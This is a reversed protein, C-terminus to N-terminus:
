VAIAEVEATYQSAADQASVPSSSAALGALPIALVLVIPLRM